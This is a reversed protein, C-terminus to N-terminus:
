FSYKPLSEALHKKGGQTNTAKVFCPGETLATCLLIHASISIQSVSVWKSVLDLAHKRDAKKGAGKTGVMGAM